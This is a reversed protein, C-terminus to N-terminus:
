AAAAEEDTETNLGASNAEAERGEASVETKGTGKDEGQEDDSAAAADEAITRGCAFSDGGTVFEDARDRTLDHQIRHHRHVAM